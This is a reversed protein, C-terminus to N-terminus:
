QQSPNATASNLTDTTQNKLQRLIKARTYAWLQGYIKRRGTRDDIPADPEPYKLQARFRQEWVYRTEPSNLQVSTLRCAERFLNLHALEDGVPPNKKRDRPKSVVYAEQKCDYIPYGNENHVRKRRFVIKSNQGLKGRMTDFPVELSLHSM